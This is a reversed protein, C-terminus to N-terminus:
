RGAADLLTAIREPPGPRSFYWGQGADCGITRLREAQAATEIGEATVTLGLAHALDVLSAVIRADVPDAAGPARLGEVFSGAIKLECVPLRRLYALNSYGTGFDDIAIRVGMSALERLRELPGGDTAMIQSETLEFQLREPELGTEALVREVQRVLGPEHCQREALNVSIFPGREPEALGLRSPRGAGHWRRAARCARELVYMGLPVILGTEEALGIFRDPGILGQRPHRWRVLAEVGCMTNDVLSVLPQYDVYFEGHHLAAPMEASLTYRAVERDNRESDFVTWRGRGESKAWYLTIDAARMTDAPGTGAVPREVIGISAGVTLDHGRIRFPERLTALIGEALAVVQGTGASNRVLVVFEDGGMRAILHGARSVYTDLRRAVEILLQDGVDHGLSDNVVKFGDLDLYCLGVRDHAGPEAFVADLRDFFLARNPMGTLPDHQAQHRLRTYLRHRDTVDEVMAVQYEPRGAADRILSITLHTWVPEGDARVYRKEAAFHDRDGRLLEAYWQAVHPPDETLMVAGLYGTLDERRLGFMQALAPNVDLVTGHVDAIAIGLGSQEFVARFRAESAYLAQEALARADDRAGLVAAHAAQEEALTRTRLADAYGAALAGHVEAVRRAHAERDPVQTGIRPLWSGILSFTHELMGGGPASTAVLAEGVARAEHPDGPDASLAHVLRQTLDQLRGLLEGREDASADPDLRQAWQQAFEHHAPGDAPTPSTAAPPPASSAAAPASPTPAPAAPTPASVSDASASPTSASVAPSLASDAPASASPALASGAPSAGSGPASRPAAASGSAFEAQDGLDSAGVPTGSRPASQVAAEAPAGGDADAADTEDAVPATLTLDARTLETRAVDCRACELDTDALGPLPRGTETLAADPLGTGTLASETLGPVVPLDAMDPLDATAPGAPRSAAAGAGGPGPTVDDRPRM